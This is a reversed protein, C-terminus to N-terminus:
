KAMTKLVELLFDTFPEIYLQSPMAQRQSVSIEDGMGELAYATYKTDAKISNLQEICSQFLDKNVSVGSERIKIMKVILDVEAHLKLLWPSLDKYLLRDSLSESNKLTEVVACDKSIQELESVLATSSPKNAAISVKYAEILTNMKETENHRLYQAISKYAEAIKTDSLIANFSAEWSKLNDFGANNWAYDAVSFLPIKAVEGQQMPNAVLGLADTFHKPMKATNSVAPMDNFNNYMDMPYIYGDANDNCPYNWWWAMPRGLERKMNATHPDNPVTWVGQGTTYVTIYEPTKGLATMFDQRIKDSGAFNSCYIQPVFHLPRVTDAALAEPVNWKAEMAHQLDTLRQANTEMDKVNNPISVDDVFVAFQRIGLQHMLEFKDMIQDIVKEDEVFNDGPHIAWIFNVKTQASVKAIDKVMDQSLWGNTEQEATIESPYADHWLQSHYPDSKAGYMYTNMKYRMMFKMLDEKVQVSYPYGYYGEVIGRSQQDAFDNIVVNALIGDESQELMQELSALGFFVANTHQGVIKIENNGVTIIHHDFKGDTEFKSPDVALIVNTLSKSLKKSFVPKYGADTLVQIVRQGTTQDIQGDCFLNIKKTLKTVGENMHLVQPTPYITYPEAAWLTASLSLAFLLVASKIAKKM